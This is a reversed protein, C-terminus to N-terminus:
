KRKGVKKKRKKKGKRKREEGEKRIEVKERRLRVKESSLWGRIKSFTFLNTKKIEKEKKKESLSEQNPNNDFGYKYSRQYFIQFILKLFSTLYKLNNVANM